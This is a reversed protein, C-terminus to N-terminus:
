NGTFILVGLVCSAIEPLWPLLIQSWKLGLGSERRRQPSNSNGVGSAGSTLAAYDKGRELMPPDSPPPWMGPTVPSAASCEEYVSIEKDAMNESRALM